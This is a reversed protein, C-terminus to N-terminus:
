SQVDKLHFNEHDEWDCEDVLAFCERCKRLRLQQESEVDHKMEYVKCDITYVFPTYAM